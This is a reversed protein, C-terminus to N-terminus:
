ALRVRGRQNVIVSRRRPGCGLTITGNDATGLGGFAIRSRAPLAAFAVGPPLSRTDLLTGARDRTECVGRGADFRVEITGDGSIAIGRALRLATAVTRAAGALRATEVLDVLRVTGVGALVTALAVVVLAELVTFGSRRTGAERV